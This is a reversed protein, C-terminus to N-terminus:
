QAKFVVDVRNRFDSFIQSYGLRGDAAQEM